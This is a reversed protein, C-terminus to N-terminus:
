GRKRMEWRCRYIMDHDRMAYNPPGQTENDGSLHLAQKSEGDTHALTIGIANLSTTHVITGRGGHAMDQLGSKASNRAGGLGVMVSGVKDGIDNEEQGTHEGGEAVRNAEGNSMQCAQGPVPCFYKPIKSQIKHSGKIVCNAKGESARRSKKPVHYLLPIHSRVVLEQVCWIFANCKRREPCRLDIIILKLPGPM